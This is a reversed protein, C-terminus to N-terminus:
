WIRVREEPKVYNKDGEKVDFAEYWADINRLPAFARVMGPSHSDTTIYQRLADDRMLTRWVQGWGLFVRQVGTFGDIEPADKGALSIRYAELGLLIGGLDGINEGMTQRAVIHLGPAQPLEFAEYQAGLRTAQAEFKAADEAAWWDRLTGDGDSKRGQDDFGHTIEHGIVGGIAGYNVAPDAQPDFFPPQLIAAPFVIENKTSSYYANVTQPTMGWEQEDVPKNIRNVDFAWEFKGSREVNGALDGERIELKSYDRWKSPYGIKVGFKTLKEVAKTKTEPGMWELKEIRAKMAARLDAVLKEMKAKSDPPFYETVYTRGIAEGMAAESAEVARKWRPRPEQAGGLFKSRFEWEADVFRKSLLPAADDAIHFAQWAKLTEVPTGAFIKALKPLATNQRVIAREVKDIGAERFAARWAFGPANKELDAITMPNYTKDRNRSEARSWQAEAIQTEMAVIGAAHKEPEPWEILRLMGAAYQQYREKQAKFKDSLYYERDPLGLGSQSLYLTYKEPNKADDFIAAAFFTRGFSGASRGMLKAVDEHTEAKKVAALHPEIPKADLKDATAEDLFTRYLAAVKAEDTGKLNKDAAFRDLIGRVRLESLERLMNFAGYRTQDPPIQTTAAWKGNVFRFFDDGPKVTRDMGELDVGWTGYRKAATSPAETKTEAVVGLTFLSLLAIAVLSRKSM